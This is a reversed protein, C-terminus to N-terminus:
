NTPLDEELKPVHMAWNSINRFQWSIGIIALVTTILLHWTSSSAPDFISVTPFILHAGRVVLSAGIISSICIVLSNFYRPVILGGILAFVFALMRAFFGGLVADLNFASAVALGFLFGGSVGILIRRYPELAYAAIGLIVACALGILISTTGLSGTIWQGLLLGIDFGFLGYLLPLWAYFIFLGFSMIALGTVMLLAAGIIPM